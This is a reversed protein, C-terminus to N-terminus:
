ILSGIKAYATYYHSRHVQAMAFCFDNLLPMQAKAAIRATYAMMQIFSVTQCVFGAAHFYIM